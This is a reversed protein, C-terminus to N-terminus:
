ATKQSSEWYTLTFPLSDLRTTFRSPMGVNLSCLNLSKSLFITELDNRMVNPKHHGRIYIVRGDMGAKRLRSDADHEGYDQGAQLEIYPVVHLGRDGRGNADEWLGDLFIGKVWTLAQLATTIDNERAM